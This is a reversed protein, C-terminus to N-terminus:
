FPRGNRRRNSNFWLPISVDDVLKHLQYGVIVTQISGFHFQSKIAPHSYINLSDYGNSNFWLPISVRDQLVPIGMAIVMPKFQVLTSNLRGTRQRANTSHNDTQISGFHFQSMVMPIESEKIKLAKNSNFWLPISVIIKVIIIRWRTLKFQVLTSNLCTIFKDLIESILETQISGFHFQSLSKRKEWHCFVTEHKFQVL